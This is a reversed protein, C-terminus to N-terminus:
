AAPPKDAMMLFILGSRGTDLCLPGDPEPHVRETLVPAFAANQQRADPAKQESM